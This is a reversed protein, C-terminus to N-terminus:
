YGQYGEYPKLSTSASHECLSILQPFICLLDFTRDQSQKCTKVLLRCDSQSQDGDLEAQSATGGAVVLPGAGHRM